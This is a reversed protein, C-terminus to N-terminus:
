RNVYFYRWDGDLHRYATHIPLYEHTRQHQFAPLLHCARIVHAPNVFGFADSSTWSVFRLRELRRVESGSAWTTDTEFWRVHLFEVRQPRSHGPTYINAHYIGLVQAYTWPYPSSSQASDSPTYVLIDAKGMSPHIIDQERQLDYTTYNIHVTAHQFIRD